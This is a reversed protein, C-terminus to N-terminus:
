YEFVICFPKEIREVGPDFRPISNHGVPGAISKCNKEEYCM